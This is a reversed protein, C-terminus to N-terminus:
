QVRLGAAVAGFQYKRGELRQFPVGLRLSAVAAVRRVPPSAIDIRSQLGMAGGAVGHRTRAQYYALGTLGRLSSRSGALEWGVLAALSHFRSFDALCGGGPAPNCSSVSGMSGQTGGSLAFLGRMGPKAGHRWGVMAEFAVGVHDQHSGLADAVGFGTSAEAWFGPRGQAVLPVALMSAALALFLSRVRIM